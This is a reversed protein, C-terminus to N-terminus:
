SRMCEILVMLGPLDRVYSQTLCVTYLPGVSLVCSPYVWGQNELWPQKWRTVNDGELPNTAVSDKIYESLVSVEAKGPKWAGAGEWWGGCGAWATLSLSDPRRYCCCVEGMILMPSIIDQSHEKLSIHTPPEIKIRYECEMKTRKEKEVKILM